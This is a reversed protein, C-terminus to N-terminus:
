HHAAQAAMAGPALLRAAIRAAAAGRHTDAGPARQPAGPLTGALALSMGLFRGATLAVSDFADLAAAETRARHVVIDCHLRRSRGALRKLATYAETIATRTPALALVMRAGPLAPPAGNVLVVDLPGLADQLTAALRACGAPQADLAALARAAPLLLLGPAPRLTVERLSREGSLAHRLEFRAACGLAAALDGASRDLLLVQRGERVLALALELTVSTADEGVVGLAQPPRPEFLRRLGDAQDDIARAAIAATTM